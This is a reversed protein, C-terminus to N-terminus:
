PTQNTQIYLEACPERVCLVARFMAKREVQQYWMGSICDSILKDEKIDSPHLDTAIMGLARQMAKLESTLTWWGVATMTENM